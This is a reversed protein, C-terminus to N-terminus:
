NGSRRVVRGTSADVDVWIVRGNRLFKLRYISGRFEPGLYQAGGMQPVVRREIMPLPMSKGSKTADYARDQDRGNDQKAAALASDRDFAAAPAEPITM